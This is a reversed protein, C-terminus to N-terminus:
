LAVVGNIKMDAGCGFAALKMDRSVRSTWDADRGCSIAWAVGPDPGLTSTVPSRMSGVLVFYRINIGCFGLDFGLNVRYQIGPM